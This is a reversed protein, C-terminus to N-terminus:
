EKEITKSLSLFITKKELSATCHFFNIQNVKLKLKSRILTNKNFTMTKLITMQKKIQRINMPKLMRDRLTEKNNIQTNRMPSMSMIIKSNNRLIKTFRNMKDKMERKSKNFKPLCSLIQFNNIMERNNNIKQQAIERMRLRNGM